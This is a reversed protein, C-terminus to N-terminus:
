LGHERSFDCFTVKKGNLIIALLNNSNSPSALSTIFESGSILTIVKFTQADLWFLNGSDCLLYLSNGDASISSSNVNLDVSSIDFIKEKKQIFDDLSGVKVVHKYLSSRQWVQILQQTKFNFALTTFLGDEPSFIRKGIYTLRGHQHKEAKFIVLVDTFEAGEGSNYISTGMWVVFGPWAHIDARGVKSLGVNKVPTCKHKMSVHYIAGRRDTLWFGSDPDGAVGSIDEPFGVIPDVSRLKPDVIFGGRGISLAGLFNQDGDMAFIYYESSIDSVKLTTKSIGDIFRLGDLSRQVCYYGQKGEPEQFVTQFNPSTSLSDKSLVFSMCSAFGVVMLNGEPSAALKASSFRYNLEDPIIEEVDENPKWSHFTQRESVWLLENRYWLMTEPIEKVETTSLLKLTGDVKYLSITRDTYAVAIERPGCPAITVVDVKPIRLMTKQGSNELVYMQSDNTTRMSFFIIGNDLFELSSLEYGDGIVPIEEFEFTEGDQINYQKLKNSIDQFFFMSGNFTMVPKEFKPVQYNFETIIEVNLESNTMDLSVLYIKVNGNASALAIYNADKSCFLALPRSEDKLIKTQGIVVGRELDIALITHRNELYYAISKEDGLCYAVSGDTNWQTLVHLRRKPIDQNERPPNWTNLLNIYSYRRTSILRRIQNKVKPSGENLFLTFLFRQSIYKSIRQSFKRLLTFYDILLKDAMEKNQALEYDSILRNIGLKTIRPELLEFDTLFQQVREKNKAGVLHSVLYSLTYETNETQEARTHIVSSQREWITRGV